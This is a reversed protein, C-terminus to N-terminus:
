YPLRPPSTLLENQYSTHLSSPSSSTFIPVCYIYFYILLSHSHTNAHRKHSIYEKWNALTFSRGVLVSLYAVSYLTTAVKFAYICLPLLPRLHSTGFLTHTREVYSLLNPHVRHTASNRYLISPRVHKTVFM